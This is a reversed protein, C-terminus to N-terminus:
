TTEAKVLAEYGGKLSLAEFGKARLVSTAFRSTDGHYCLCLVKKRGTFRSLFAESFLAELETWQKELLEPALFPSKAAGDLSTLPVNLAGPFHDSEFDAQQRFDVTFTSKDELLSRATAPSSVEWADDYRYLDAKTLSENQIQPFSEPGLNSFYEDIYQYSLDCCIFVAHMLGDEGRLDSLTGEKKRVSLFNFLGQLSVGSSSGCILGNRCLQLSLAFSDRCGVHEIHDV